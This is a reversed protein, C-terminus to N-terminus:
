NYYLSHVTTVHLISCNKNIYMCGQIYMCMCHVSFRPLMTGSGKYEIYWKEWGGKTSRSRASVVVVAVPVVAAVVPVSLPPLPLPPLFLLPSYYQLFKVEINHSTM